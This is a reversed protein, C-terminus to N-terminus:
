FGKRHQDVQELHYQKRECRFAKDKNTQINQQACKEAETM